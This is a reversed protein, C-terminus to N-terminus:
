ANLFQSIEVYCLFAIYGSLTFIYEIKLFLDFVAKFDFQQLTTKWLRQFSTSKLSYILSNGLTIKNTTQRCLKSYGYLIKIPNYLSGSNLKLRFQHFHCM